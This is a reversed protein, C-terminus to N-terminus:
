APVRVVPPAYEIHSSRAPRRSSDPSSGAQAAADQVRRMFLRTGDDIVGLRAGSERPARGVEREIPPRTALYTLESRNSVGVKEFVRALTNRVTNVSVGTLMAIEANQLGRAALEVFEGERRSLQYAEAFHAAHADDAAELTFVEVIHLFPGLMDVMAFERETFPRAHGRRELNFGAVNGNRISVRVLMEKMGTPELVENFVALEKRRLGPWIEQFARARNTYGAVEEGSIQALFRGLNHKLFNTDHGVVAGRGELSTGWSAAIYGAEFGVSQQLRELMEPWIVAPDREVVIMEAFSGVLDHIESLSM